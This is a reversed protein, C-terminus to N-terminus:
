GFQAVGAADLGKFISIQGNPLTIEENMHGCLAQWQDRTSAFNQALVNPYHKLFCRVLFGLTVTKNYRHVFTTEYYQILPSSAVNIGVGVSYFPDVKEILIGCIKKGEVLVDNPYKLTVLPSMLKRLIQAVAVGVILPVHEIPHEIPQVYSLYLNGKPAFWIRGYRGRGQSQEGAIILRPCEEKQTLCRKAKLTTSDLKSFYHIKNTLEVSM